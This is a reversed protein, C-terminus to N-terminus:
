NPNSERYGGRLPRTSLELVLNFPSRLSFELTKGSVQPNQLLFNLFARKESPESGNFIEKARRAISFVTAVTTQYDYDAKNHEELEINLLQIKDYYEQHKKDYIDKTISKDLFAELLFDDKEKLKTHENHIRNIQAKHFIVEAETTQRLEEVLEDQTEETIGSFSELIAWIPELLAKESIYERKCIRKGNSCSYYVFVLGSKKKHIEPTMTCGCKQCRLLGKFIFEQGIFKPRNTRKREMVERCKDFLEKTILKEYQHPYLGHKKSFAMGYYFPTKIVNDICSRSPKLGRIPSRLGMKIVELRLTELSYNGTSYMEFMKVIIHAREPDPIFTNNGDKDMSKMYGLPPKGLWRGDKRMKEFSRKVTDSIADSYYKALGLNIGFHFKETASISSNIVLNDSVFHLEIKDQMALEYLISVRKDFVNRSFRDVKDFCVVVKEKQEKICDL